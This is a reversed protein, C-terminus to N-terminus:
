PKVKELLSNEKEKKGLLCASQSPKKQQLPLSHVVQVLCRRISLPIMIYRIAVNM